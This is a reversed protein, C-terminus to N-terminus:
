LNSLILSVGSFILLGIVWLKATREPVRKHFFIGIFLGLAMFPLLRLANKLVEATLIGSALYLGIRFTNEVLFVICNNARFGSQSDTTRSVYAVLLASVGFMGCLIGSLLGIAVLFVPSGKRSSPKAPAIGASAAGANKAGNAGRERFFMELAIGVVVFGFFIKLLRADVHTLLFAGPICGAIVLACLPLCVRLRIGRRETWAIYLNSPYGLLLDVPSINVNDTFFGALTSFVLTNAFGCMGKVIYAAVVALIIYPTVM